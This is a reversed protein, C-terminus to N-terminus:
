QQSPWSEVTLLRCKWGKPYTKAETLTVGDWNATQKGRLNSVLGGGDDIRNGTSDVIEFRINVDRVTTTTNTVTGRAQAMGGFEATGCKTLKGTVEQTPSPDAPASSPAAPTSASQSAPDVAPDVSVPASSCGATVLVASLLFVPRIRM